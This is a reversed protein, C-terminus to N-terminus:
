RVTVSKAAHGNVSAANHPQAVTGASTAPSTATPLPLLSAVLARNEPGLLVNYGSSAGANAINYAHTPQSTQSYTNQLAAVVNFAAIDSANLLTQQSTQLTGPGSFTPPVSQFPALATNTNQFATGLAAAYDISSINPSAFPLQSNPLIGTTGAQTM